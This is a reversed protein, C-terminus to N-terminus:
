APPLPKSRPVVTARASAKLEVVRVLRVVDVELRVTLRSNRRRRASDPDDQRQNSDLTFRAVQGFYGPLALRLGSYEEAPDFAGELGAVIAARQFRTTAWVELVFKEQHEHLPLVCTGPGFLDRTQEDLDNAFGRGTLVVEGPLAVITPFVLDKPDDPWEDLLNARKIRFSRSPSEDGQDLTFEVTALYDMLAHVAHQRADVGPPPPAPARPRVDGWLRGGITKLVDLLSM